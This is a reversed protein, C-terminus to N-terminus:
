SAAAILAASHYHEFFEVAKGDGNFRWVDAKPTDAIKKTSKNRWATRGIVIVRDGQPVYDDIVYDIMEWDRTLEELYHAVEAKTRRARTFALLDPRGQALSGFNIEDAVISLWQDKSGAKTEKWLAYAERLIETNRAELTV